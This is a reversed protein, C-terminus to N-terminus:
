KDTLRKLNKQASKNGKKSAVSYYKIALDIDGTTEFYAAICCEAPAYGQLASLSFYYRALLESKAVGCGLLYCVGLYKQAAADGCSSFHKFICSAQQYNKAQYQHIANDISIEYNCQDCLQHRLVDLENNDTQEFEEVVKELMSVIFSMDIANEEKAQSLLQQALELVDTQQVSHPHAWILNEILEMCIKEFVKKELTTENNM